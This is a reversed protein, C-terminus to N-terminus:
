DIYAISEYTGGKITFAKRPHFLEEGELTKLAGKPFQQVDCSMRGSVAGASNLQTYLRGDYAANKQIRLIYTSYWKEYSRLSKILEALRKPQGDHASMIEKMAKADDSDLHISWKERFIDKIKEHQNVTVKEGVLEYMENRLKTIYSKVKTRSQELYDMDVKLGVREMRYMPLICKSELELIPLQKRKIIFKMAKQFFELMTIIDEGGYKIMLDRDVDEYTPEPYEEQWDLWVDKVGDPLDEVDNTPDKLFKEIAGKGWYKQKGKATLEGEIPFQKLASSLVKIREANLRHLEDKIISESKTAEPHVYKKGLEKLKLSDGGEREPIAELSLRAAAMNEVLNTMAQVEAAYGINSLMNLDYKINHAV